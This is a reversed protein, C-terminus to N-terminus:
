KIKFEKLWNEYLKDCKEKSSNPTLILSNVPVAVASFDADGYAMSEGRQKRSENEWHMGLAEIFRNNSKALLEAHYNDM